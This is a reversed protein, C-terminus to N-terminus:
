AAGGDKAISRGTRRCIAYSCELTTGVGFGDDVISQRVAAAAAYNHDFRLSDVQRLRRRISGDLSNSDDKAASGDSTEVKCASGVEAEAVDCDKFTPDSDQKAVQEVAQKFCDVVTVPPSDKAQKLEEALAHLDHLEKLWQWVQQAALEPNHGGLLCFPDDIMQRSMADVASDLSSFQRFVCHAPIETMPIM